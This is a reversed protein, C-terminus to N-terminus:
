NTMVGISDLQIRPFFTVAINDATATSAVSLEIEQRDESVGLVVAAAGIGTGTAGMGPMVAQCTAKPVNTLTADTNTTSVVGVHTRRNSLITHLYWRTLSAAVTLTGIGAVIGTGAAFTMAQAVGNRYALMFSDGVQPNEMAALIQDASPWTDTFGAGPGTRNLVGSMVQAATLTASGATSNAQVALQDLAKAGGQQQQTFGGIQVINRALM